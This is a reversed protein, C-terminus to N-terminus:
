SERLASLSWPKEERALTLRHLFDALSYTLAFLQLRTQNDKFTRCSLKTRKVVNRGEKGLQEATARGNYFTV